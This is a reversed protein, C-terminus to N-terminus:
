DKKGTAKTAKTVKKKSMEIDGETRVTVKESTVKAPGKGFIKKDLELENRREYRLLKAREQVNSLWRPLGELSKNIKQLNDIVLDAARKIEQYNLSVVQKDVLLNAFAIALKREVERAEKRFHKNKVEEPILRGIRHPNLTYRNKRKALTKSKHEVKIVECAQTHLQAAQKTLQNLDKSVSEILQDPTQTKM